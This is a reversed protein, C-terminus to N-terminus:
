GPTGWIYGVQKNWTSYASISMLWSYVTLLKYSKVSKKKFLGELLKILRFNIHLGHCHTSPVVYLSLSFNFRTKSNENKNLSITLTFFGKVHRKSLPAKFYLLENSTEIHTQKLHNLLKKFCLCFLKVSLKLVASFFSKQVVRPDRDLCGIHFCCSCCIIGYSHHTSNYVNRLM